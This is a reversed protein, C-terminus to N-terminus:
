FTGDKLLPGDGSLWDALAKIKSKGAELVTLLVDHKTYIGWHSPTLFHFNNICHFHCLSVAM